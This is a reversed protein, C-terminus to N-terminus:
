PVSDCGDTHEDRKWAVLTTAAAVTDALSCTSSVDRISKNSLHGVRLLEPVYVSLTESRAM